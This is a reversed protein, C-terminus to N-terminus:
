MDDSDDDLLDYEDDSSWLDDVFDVPSDDDVFDVPYDNTPYNPCRLDKIQEACRNGLPGELNLNYCQRLDLSELHPCGNLIACLGVNTLKCGLLQLHRLKPMNNAIAFAVEDSEVHPYRFGKMNFKLSQM